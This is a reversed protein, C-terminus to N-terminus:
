KTHHTIKLILGTIVSRFCGVHNVTRNVTQNVTQSATQQYKSQCNRQCSSQCNRQSNPQCSSHWNPQCNPQYNPPSDTSVKISLKASLETSQKPSLKISLNTSLKPSFTQNSAFIGRFCAWKDISWLRHKTRGVQTFALLGSCIVPGNDNVIYWASHWLCMYHVDIQLVDSTLSLYSVCKLVCTESIVDHRYLSTVTQRATTLNNTM